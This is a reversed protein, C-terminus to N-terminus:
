LYKETYLHSFYVVLVKSVQYSVRNLNIVTPCLHNLLNKKSPVLKFKARLKMGIMEEHRNLVKVLSEKTLHTYNVKSVCQCM